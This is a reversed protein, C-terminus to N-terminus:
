KTKINSMEPSFFEGIIMDAAFLFQMMSRCHDAAHCSDEIGNELQRYSM